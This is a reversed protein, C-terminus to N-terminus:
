KLVKKKKVRKNECHFIRDIEPYHNLMNGFQVWLLKEGQDNRSSLTPGNQTHEVYHLRPNNHDPVSVRVHNLVAMLWFWLDDNTPCLEMFLEENLIDDAMCHPPYLVGGCGTVKYLYSTKPYVHRGRGIMKYEGDEVYMETVRHCHVLKPKKLYEEYLVRLWNREYYLDDDTTVIVAEPFMQLTPILKKFSRIDKYWAITLGYNTLELLEEPLEDEMEPFQEPALWLIVHDPKVSQMLLSRITHHVVGIRAPFSTLSVVLEPKHLVSSVGKWGPIHSLVKWKVRMKLRFFKEPLSFIWRKVVVIIYFQKFFAFIRQKM